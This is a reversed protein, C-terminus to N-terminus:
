NEGPPRWRWKWHRGPTVTGKSVRRSTTLHSPECVRLSTSFTPATPPSRKLYACDPSREGREYNVQTRRQVGAAAAFADQNMGLRAREERLREAIPFM